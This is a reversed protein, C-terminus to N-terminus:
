GAAGGALFRLERAAADLLRKMRTDEDIVDPSALIAEAWGLRPDRDFDPGLVFMLKVYAAVGPERVIGYGAARVVGHRIAERAGDDGLQEMHGPLRDRFHAILDDEFRRLECACQMWAAARPRSSSAKILQGV